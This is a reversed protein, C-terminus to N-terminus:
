GVHLLYTLVVILTIGVGIGVGIGVKAGTSLNNGKVRTVDTYSVTSDTGTKPDSVVFSTDNVEGIYGALVKKNRLKLAVRTHKGPGLKSIGAKVKETLRVQKELKSGASAPEVNVLACMMLGTMTLALTRNFM